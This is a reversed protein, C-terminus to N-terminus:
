EEKAGGLTINIKYKNQLHAHSRSAFDSRPYLKCIQQFTQIAQEKRESREYTEGIRWMANQAHGDGYSRAQNYLVLAENFQKQDRQIDGMRFYADPFRDSLRYAQLAKQVDKIAMYCDAINWNFGAKGTTIITNQWGEIAEPYKGADQWTRAITEFWKGKGDPDISAVYTYMEVAKEPMKCRAYVGACEGAWKAEHEKDLQIIQGYVEKAKDPQEDEAHMEAINALGNVKNEFKEYTKVAEKRRNKRKHWSAVKGLNDDDMGILGALKKYAELVEDDRDVSAHLGAVRYMYERAQDKAGKGELDEPIKSVIFAIVQDALKNAAGETKKDKKLNGIHYRAKEDAQRVIGGYNREMRWAKEQEALAELGKAADGSKFYHSCLELAATALYYDNDKDRKIDFTLERLIKVLLKDDSHVMAIDRTDWLALVRVHKDPYDERVKDYAKIANKVEGIDKYSSGILYAALAAEPSDPWYDVVSQYGDRIATNVRRLRVLCHSWMIQAYPAAESREYLTLFKEFEAMSAKYDGKAFFRQAIILQYKETQRLDKAVEFRLLEHRDGRLDQNINTQAPLTTGAALALLITSITKKM